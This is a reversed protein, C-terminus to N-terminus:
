APAYFDMVKSELKQEIQFIGEKEGDSNTSAEVIGRWILISGKEPDLKSKPENENDV